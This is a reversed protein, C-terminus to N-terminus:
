ALRGVPFAHPAGALRRWRWALAAVALAVSALAAGPLLPTGLVGRLSAAALFCLALSALLGVFMQWGAGGAVHAHDRLPAALLPLTLCCICAQMWVIASPAGALAVMCLVAGSLIAWEGLGALLLRRALYRNFASASGPLAPALRVLSQEGRTVSLRVLRREHDFLQTVLTWSIAIWAGGAIVDLTDARVVRRAVAMAGAAIAVALVMPLLRQTWHVAPGPLHMLLAGADRRALDRRLVAQYLWTAIRLPKPNRFHEEASTQEGVLQQAAYLRYHREGGQPFMTELTYAGLALLLLTAVAFGPGGALLALWEPPIAKNLIISAPVVFHVVKGAPHGSRALGFAILWLGVGLFVFQARVPTGLALLTSLGVAGAWALLALQLLRRRMRPVLQAHAPTNLKIAGPVFYMMWGFVVVAFAARIGNLASARPDGTKLQVLLGVSLACFLAFGGLAANAYQHRTALAARWLLGFDRLAAMM